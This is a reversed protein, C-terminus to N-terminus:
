ILERGGCRGEWRSATPPSQSTQKFYIVDEVDAVGEEEVERDQELRMEEYEKTVPFLMLVAKVPHPCFALLEPDLGFCDQFSWQTTDLGLSQSWANFSDPNSRPLSPNAPTHLSPPHSPTLAYSELALWRQEDPAM